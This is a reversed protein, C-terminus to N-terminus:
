SVLRWVLKFLFYAAVCASAAAALMAMAVLGAPHDEPQPPPPTTKSTPTAVATPPEDRDAEALCRRVVSVLRATSFPKALTETAGIEKAADLLRELSQRGGGSIAIIRARPQQRRIEVITEIGDKNPMVLDTIVLDPAHHRFAVLGQEGDSAVIVEYGRERLVDALTSRVDPDDDILLIRAM